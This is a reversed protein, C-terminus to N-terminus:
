LPTSIRQHIKGCKVRTSCSIIHHSNNSDYIITIICTSTLYYKIYVFLSRNLDVSKKERKKMCRYEIDDYHEWDIHVNARRVGQSPSSFLICCPICKLLIFISLSFFLYFGLFFTCVWCFDFLKCWYVSSVLSPSM